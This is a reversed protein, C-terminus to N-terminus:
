NVNPGTAVIEGNQEFVTIDGANIEPYNNHYYEYVSLAKLIEDHAIFCYDNRLNIM